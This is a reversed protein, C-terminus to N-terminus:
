DPDRTEEMRTLLDASNNLDIGPQLGRGSFTTLKILTNTSPMPQKDLADRLADEIVAALTKGTREAHRKAQALLEDNLQLTTRM